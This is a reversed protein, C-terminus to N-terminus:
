WDNVNSNMGIKCIVLIVYTLELIKRSKNCQQMDVKCKCYTGIKKERERFFLYLFSPFIGYKMSYRM